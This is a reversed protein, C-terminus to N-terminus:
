IIVYNVNGNKKTKGIYFPNQGIIKNIFLNTMKLGGLKDVTLWSFFGVPSLQSCIFGESM